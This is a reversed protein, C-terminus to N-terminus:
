QTVFAIDDIRIEVDTCSPQVGGDEPAAGSELQWQLGVLQGQFANVHATGPTMDAFPITMEMPTTSLTLPASAPFGYCGVGADADMACAGPPSQSTPRQEFTQMQVKFNCRTIDGVPIWAKFRLANFAAASVCTDFSIGGGAYGGPGVTLTLRFNEATADVAQSHASVNVGDVTPGSYGFVSGRLDSTNCYKGDMASWERSSFTVVHGDSLSLPAGACDYVGTPASCTFRGGSGGAGTNGSGGAGTRMGGSGGCNSLAAAFILAGGM